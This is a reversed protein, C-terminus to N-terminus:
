LRIIVSEVSEAELENKFKYMISRSTSIFVLQYIVNQAISANGQAPEWPTNQSTCGVSRWLSSNRVFSPKRSIRRPSALLLSPTTSPLSSYFWLSMLASVCCACKLGKWVHSIHLAKMLRNGPCDYWRRNIVAINIM